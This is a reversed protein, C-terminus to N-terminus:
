WSVIEGFRQIEMTELLKALRTTAFMRQPTQYTEASEYYMKRVDEITWNTDALKVM